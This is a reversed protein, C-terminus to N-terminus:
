LYYSLIKQTQFGNSPGEHLNM